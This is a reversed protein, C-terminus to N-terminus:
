AALGRAREALDDIWADFEPDDRADEMEPLALTVLKASVGMARATANRGYGLEV